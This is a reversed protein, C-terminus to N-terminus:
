ASPQQAAANEIEDLGRALIIEALNAMSRNDRQAARELRTRLPGIVQISARKPRPPRKTAM